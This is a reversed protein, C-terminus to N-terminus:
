SSPFPAPKWIDAMDDPLDHLQSEMEALHRLIAQSKAARAEHEAIMIEQAATASEKSRAMMAESYQLNWLRTKLPPTVVDLRSQAEARLATAVAAKREAPPPTDDVVQYDAVFDDPQDVTGPIRRVAAEVTPHATPAPMGETMLHDKKAQVFDAVAKDFDFPLSKLYSLSFQPM